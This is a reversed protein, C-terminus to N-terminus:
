SWHSCALGEKKNFTQSPNSPFTPAADMARKAIWEWHNIGGSKILSLVQWWVQKAGGDPLLGADLMRRDHATDNPQNVAVWSSWCSEKRRHLKSKFVM